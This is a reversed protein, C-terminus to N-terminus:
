IPALFQAKSFSFVFSLDFRKDALVASAVRDQLSKLCVDRKSHSKALRKIEHLRCLFNLIPNIDMWDRGALM